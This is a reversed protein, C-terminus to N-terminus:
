RGTTITFDIFTLKYCQIAYKISVLESKITSNCIRIHQYHKVITAYIIDMFLTMSCTFVDISKNNDEVHM